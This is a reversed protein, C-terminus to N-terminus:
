AIRACEGSIDRESAREHERGIQGSEGDLNLRQAAEDAQALYAERAAQKGGKRPSARAPPGTGDALISELLGSNVPQVSGAATRRQVATELATLLAADTIGRQAWDRLRVEGAAVGAGRSRLLVAIEVARATFADAPPEAAPQNEGSSPNETGMSPAPDADPQSDQPSNASPKPNQTPNPNEPPATRPGVTTAGRQRESGSEPNLIRSEPNLANALPPNVTIACNNGIESLHVRRSVGTVCGNRGRENVTLYGAEDPIESDKETGHPSQHDLFRLVQIYRVGAVVYRRIFNWRALEDLLPDVDFADFPFIEGKIRRPRDELRGERDALMWLGPFLLRARESCEALDENKYFGPKINRARAM